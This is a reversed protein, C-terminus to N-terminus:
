QHWSCYKFNEFCLKVIFLSTLFIYLKLSFLYFNVLSAKHIRAWTTHKTLLYTTCLNSNEDNSHIKINQWSKRILEQKLVAKYIFAHTHKWEKTINNKKLWVFLHRVHYRYFELTELASSCVIVSQERANCVPYSLIEQLM